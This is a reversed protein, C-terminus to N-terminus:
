YRLATMPDIRLARRAPIYCAALSVALLLLAVSVFTLPDTARIGFLLKSIARTLALAVVVGIAVGTTALAMGYGLVLRLVQRRRVGLAVRIGIEQTRQGVLYALVGYIGLSALLLALGAFAGLLTTQSRRNSTEADL